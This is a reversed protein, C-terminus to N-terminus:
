WWFVFNFLSFYPLVLSRDLISDLVKQVPSLLTEALALKSPGILNTYWSHELNINWGNGLLIEEQLPLSDQCLTKKTYTLGM